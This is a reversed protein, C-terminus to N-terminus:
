LKNIEQKVKKEKEIKAIVLISKFPLMDNVNTLAKIKENQCILACQKAEETTHFMMKEILEKATQKPTM